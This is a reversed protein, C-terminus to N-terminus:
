GPVCCRLAPEEESRDGLFANELAFKAILTYCVYLLICIMFSYRSSYECLSHEWTIFLPQPKKSHAGMWGSWSLSCRQGGSLGPAGGLGQGKLLSGVGSKELLGQSASGQLVQSVAEKLSKWSQEAEPECFAERTQWGLQTHQTRYSFTQENRGWPQLAWWEMKVLFALLVQKYFAITM